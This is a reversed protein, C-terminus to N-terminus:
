GAWVLRDHKAGDYVVPLNQPPSLSGSPVQDLNLTYVGAYWIRNLLDSSSVFHGQFTEATGRLPLYHIGVSQLTVSGPAALTLLQYREGGQVLADTFTGAAAVPQRDYRLPSGAGAPPFG